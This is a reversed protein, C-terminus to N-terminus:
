WVLECKESLYLLIAEVSHSNLHTEELQLEAAHRHISIHKTPAQPHCMLRFSSIECVYELLCFFLFSLVRVNEHSFVLLRGM